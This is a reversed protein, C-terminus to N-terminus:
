SGPTTVITSPSRRITRVIRQSPAKCSPCQLSSAGPGSLNVTVVLWPGGRQSIDFM